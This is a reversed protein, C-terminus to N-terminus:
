LVINALKSHNNTSSSDCRLLLDRDGTESIPPLSWAGTSIGEHRVVGGVMWCPVVIFLGIRGFHTLM